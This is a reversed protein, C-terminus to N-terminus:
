SCSSILPSGPGSIASRAGHINVLRQMRAVGTHQGYHWTSSSSFWDSVPFPFTQGCSFAAHKPLGIRAKMPQRPPNMRDAASCHSLNSSVFFKLNMRSRSSRGVSRPCSQTRQSQKAAFAEEHWLTMTSHTEEANRHLQSTLKAVHTRSEDRM